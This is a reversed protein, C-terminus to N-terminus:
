RIGSETKLFQFCVDNNLYLKLGFFRNPAKNNILPSNSDIENFINNEDNKDKVLFIENSDKSKFNNDKEEHHKEKEKKKNIDKNIFSNSEDNTSSSEIDMMEKM